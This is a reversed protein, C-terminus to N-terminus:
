DLTWWEGDMPLNLTRREQENFLDYTEDTVWGYRSSWALGHDMRNRIVYM